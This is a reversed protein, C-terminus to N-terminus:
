VRCSLNFENAIMYIKITNIYFSRLLHQQTTFFVICIPLFPTKSNKGHATFDRLFTTLTTVIEM